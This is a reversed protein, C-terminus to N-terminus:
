PTDTKPIITEVMGALTASQDASLLINEPLSSKSWGSAWSPLGAMVGVAAAMNKLAVRREM